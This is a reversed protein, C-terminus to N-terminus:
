LTSPSPRVLISCAKYDFWLSGKKQPRSEVVMNSSEEQMADAHMARKINLLAEAAAMADPQKKLDKGERAEEQPFLDDYAPPPTSSQQTDEVISGYRWTHRPVLSSIRRVMANDQYDPINPLPPLAPLQFGPINWSVNQQFHQIQAALADRWAVMAAAPTMTGPEESIPPPVTPLQTSSRRSQSASKTINLGTDGRCSAEESDSSLYNAESLDWSAKSSHLSSHSGGGRLRPRHQACQLCERVSSSAALDYATYGRLSRTTPDAGKSVLLRLIQTNGHLSAIMLPTYGGKDRIDVNAGRALLAAVPRHLALSCAMSLLSVGDDSRMDYQPAHSSDDMDAADLIRLLFSELGANSIGELGASFQQVMGQYGGDGYSMGPAGGGAYQSAAQRAVTQWQREDGYQKQSLFRLALEMMRKEEEVQKYTFTKAPTTPPSPYQPRMNGPLHLTVNVVGPQSPPLVCCLAKEGWCTTATALQDGFMVETGQVFGSGFISVETGGSTPGENPTIQFIRPPSVREQVEVGNAGTFPNTRANPGMSNSSVHGHQRQYAALNPGSNLVPSAARSQHASSPASYFQYNSNEISGPHHLHSFYTAGAPASDAPTPPASPHFQASTGSQPMSIFGASTPSFPSASMVGQGSTAQANVTDVRTMRLGDPIARKTAGTSAKRKKNPGAVQQSNPSAPRSLNKPTATASTVGSQSQLNTSSGFNSGPLSFNGSQLQHVNSASNNMYSHQGFALGHLNGTSKSASFSPLRTTMDTMSQSGLGQGFGHPNFSNAFQQSGFVPANATAFNQPNPATTFTTDYFVQQGPMSGLTHTKHDDTILISASMQQAIVNGAQDKITFIVRSLNGTLMCNIQHAFHNVSQFGDKENQHRCYCAIRMPALVQMAGEPPQYDDVVGLGLGGVAGVGASDKLPPPPQWATWDKFENCNFVIVREREFREWHAQEEEKKLKKRAARKRERNICNACIRVPGGNLAKDAENEEEQKSDQRVEQDVPSNANSSSQSTAERPVPKPVQGAARQLAAERLHPQNMASTCVLMTELELTDEAAVSEKALLKAKAITHTPLHLKTIGPPLYDLTMRINIQTEVRSKAPIPAIHLRIRGPVAPRQAQGAITVGANTVIPSPTTLANPYNAPWTPNETQSAWMQGGNNFLDNSDSSPTSYDKQLLNPSTNQGYMSLGVTPSADRSGGLFFHNPRITTSLTPNAASSSYEQSVPRSFAGPNLTGPSSSTSGFDFTNSMQANTSNMDIDTDLGYSGIATRLENTYGPGTPSMKFEALAQLDQMDMTQSGVEQKVAYRNRNVSSGVQLGAFGEAIAPPSETSTERKRRRRSSSESSSDQSSSEASGATMPNRSQFAQDQAPRASPANGEFKAPSAGFNVAPSDTSIGSFDFLPNADFPSDTNDGYPQYGTSFSPDDWIAMDQDKSNGSM